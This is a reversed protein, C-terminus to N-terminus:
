IGDAYKPKGILTDVGIQSHVDIQLEPTSLELEYWTHAPKEADLIAEVIKRQRRISDISGGPLTVHVHFFHPGRGSVDPAGPQQSTSADTIQARLGTEVAILQELGQRTGRMSYLTAARAILDRRQPESMNGRLEVAVWGALWELFEAPACQEPALVTGGTRVGPDFYREIGALTRGSAPDVTGDLVEELGPDDIDGLGTLVHEFALLLRGLFTPAGPEADEQFLAPLQDLYGSRRTADVNSV